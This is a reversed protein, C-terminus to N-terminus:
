EKVKIQRDRPKVKHDPDLGVPIPVELRDMTTAIQTPGIVSLLIPVLPVVTRDVYINRNVAPPRLLSWQHRMTGDPLKGQMMHLTSQVQRM